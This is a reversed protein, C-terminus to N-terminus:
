ETSSSAAPNLVVKDAVKGQVAVTDGSVIVGWKAYLTVTGDDHCVTSQYTQAGIPQVALLLAICLATYAKKMCTAKM